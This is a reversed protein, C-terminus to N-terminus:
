SRRSSAREPARDFLHELRKRVKSRGRHLLVRMNTESIELENCIWQSDHGAYDRLLVVARQVPPLEDVAARIEAWTEAALLRAAPDDSWAPLRQAWHGPYKGDPGQFRSADVSREDRHAEEGALVWFSSTRADRSARTKARNAVISFIWSKLSGRGEFAGIGGLVALWAEQAVDEATSEDRVFARALRIMGPHYLAAIREFATEEGNRLAEILRDEEGMAYRNAEAMLCVPLLGLVGRPADIVRVSM